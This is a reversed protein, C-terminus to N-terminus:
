GNFWPIVYTFKLIIIIILSIQSIILCAIGSRYGWIMPYPRQINLHDSLLAQRNLAHYAMSKFKRAGYYGLVNFCTIFVVIILSIEKSPASLIERVGFGTLALYLGLAQIYRTMVFRSEEVLAKYEIIIKGPAPLDFRSIPKEELVM